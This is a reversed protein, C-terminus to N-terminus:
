AAPCIRSKCVQARTHCLPRQLRKTIFSFYFLSPMTIISLILQWARMTRTGSAHKCFVLASLATQASRHRAERTGSIRKSGATFVSRTRQCQAERTGVIRKSDAAFVSRTRQCRAGLTCFIREACICVPKACVSIASGICRGPQWHKCSPTAAADMMHVPLERPVRLVM